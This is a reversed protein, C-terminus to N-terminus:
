LAPNSVGGDVVDVVTWGVVSVVVAEGVSLVPGASLAKASGKFGNAKPICLESPELGCSSLSKRSILKFLKGSDEVGFGEGREELTEKEENGEEAVGAKSGTLFRASVNDM